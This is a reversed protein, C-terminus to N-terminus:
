KMVVGIVDPPTLDRLIIKMGGSLWHGTAASPIISVFSYIYISCADHLPIYQSSSVEKFIAASFEVTGSSLPELAISTPMAFSYRKEDKLLLIM